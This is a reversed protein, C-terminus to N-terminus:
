DEILQDARITKDEGAQTDADTRFYWQGKVQIKSTFYIRTGKTIQDTTAVGNKANIKVTDSATKLWRPSSFSEYPVEEVDSARFGQNLGFAVDADTKYYTVGNVIVQKAICVQRGTTFTEGIPIESEPKYKRANNKLQMCYNGNRFTTYPIAEIDSAPIANSVNNGTDTETRYYWTNGALIKSTFRLKTGAAIPYNLTTRTRPEVKNTDTKIQMWRPDSFAEYPLEELWGAPIGKSNGQATDTETRYYLTGNVTIQSNFFMSRGTKLRDDINFGSRPNQKYADQKLRLWKPTTVSTYPIEDVETSLIGKHVNNAKDTATRLYWKGNLFLKDVFQIQRGVELTDDVQEGTWLDIKKTSTAIRLWRVPSLSVYRAKTSGFWSTFYLYFNRNGYAGCHVTGWGADLAAQNPQYPTYNYLAQTARNQIYVNSGGCSADPSYRIFNNGLEYPTYWNPNDDMISRFMRAAWRVQNTFGYYDADCAATDPCGYGTAARYQISLPWTDTILGQEKQLLVILVQPNINFDRGTEYIIQAASKGHETFDKLCTFPASYGRSEAWQRRTGGGFESQQEGWTDCSPVKSNLFSQISNTNMTTYDTFVGDDIISGADWGDVGAHATPMSFLSGMTAAALTTMLLLLVPAVKIKKSFILM